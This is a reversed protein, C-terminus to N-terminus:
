VYTCLIISLLFLFCVFPDFFGDLFQPFQNLCGDWRESLWQRKRGGSRKKKLKKERNRRKM